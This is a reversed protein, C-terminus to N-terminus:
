RADPPLGRKTLKWIKMDFIVNMILFYFGIITFPILLYILTMFFFKFMTAMFEFALVKDSVQWCFYFLFTALLYSMYILFVRIYRRFNVKILGGAMVTDRIEMQWAAVICIILLVLSVFILVGYTLGESTSSKKGSPTIEYSFYADGNRIGNDCDVSTSYIGLVSTHNSNLEYHFEGDTADYTMSGKKIMKSSNPYDINITCTNSGDLPTMDYDNMQLHLDIDTNQKFTFSSDEANVNIIGILLFMFVFGLIIKKNM